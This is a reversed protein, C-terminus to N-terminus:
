CKTKAWLAAPHKVSKRAGGKTQFLSVIDSGSLPVGATECSALGLRDELESVCCASLSLGRRAWTCSVIRTQPQLPRSCDNFTHHLNKNFFQPSMIAFSYRFSSLHSFLFKFSEYLLVKSTTLAPLWVPFEQHSLAATWRHKRILLSNFARRM